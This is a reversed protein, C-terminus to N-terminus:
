LVCRSVSSNNQCPPFPLWFTTLVNGRPPKM